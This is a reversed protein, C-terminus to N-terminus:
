PDFGRMRAPEPCEALQDQDWRDITRALGAGRRGLLWAGIRLAFMPLPVPTAGAAWAIRRLIERQDLTESGGIERIVIAPDDTMPDNISDAIRAALDDAFVPNRQGGARAPIPLLRWRKALRILPAVNADDRGNWIMTARVIVLEFRLRKATTVLLDEAALLRLALAREDASPSQAKTRVSISGLAIVRRLDPAEVRALWTALHDLPGLSVVTEASCPTRSTELAMARWDVGVEERVQRSWATFGRGDARLM